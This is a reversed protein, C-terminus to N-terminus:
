PQKRTENRLEPYTTTRASRTLITAAEPRRCRQFQPSEVIGLILARARGNEREIRDVLADVTEVDQHSLGRGLAYTLMKESLRRFFEHSHREALIRKLERVNSFSEGTLLTGTADVPSGEDRERWRGLANFNEMGLGLPDMRNHCSRCEPRKRHLELAERLTPPRGVFAGAATELPPVNPPQPPPPTGLINDLIFLGRKVPSTRNPNSTAILVTGQTLVGGRPSDPPLAVLRMEDGEVGDIEYHKALRENLFTYDGVLLELLSRDQRVVHDFVLETERRMAERLEETLDHERFRRFSKFYAARTANLEKKEDVTLSDPFRRNLERLRARRRPADPDSPQDRDIVAFTNIPVAGVDRAHLWQGVFNRNFEASRPDALMRKVQAKLGSRLARREALRFLEADPMSSWLFYSLRSALAFEDILPYPVSDSSEMEFGEERFLFKPSALVATMAQAVGAEFARGPRSYFGEALSTLREVTEADVPRRFARGAFDRLLSSAYRRREVGGEPVDGPFFRAHNAPRVWSKPDLPGRVSVSALEIELSRFPNEGPTLPELIMTLQHDGESWDLDHDLDYHFPKAEHQSYDERFLERGDAKFVIRCRNYDPGLANKGNATLDLALSYRGSHEARFTAVVTAPQYYSLSIPGDDEEDDRGVATAGAPHFRRGAIRTEGVVRPVTPVAQSVISEAAALYKELLMPSLTLVDAMNDFGHGSDDPPFAVSTDYDVGMLDRVTNRYEVRNLRRVTVRGPDPATPDIGFADYKIWDELLRLEEATPQPKGTPPMVGARVNTLVGWWHAEDRPRGQGLAPEDLALGGAKAGAGHCGVCYEELIPQVRDVFRAEVEDAAVGIAPLLVAVALVVALRAPRIPRRGSRSYRPFWSTSRSQPRVRM